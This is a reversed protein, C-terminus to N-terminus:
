VLTLGKTESCLFVETSADFEVLLGPLTDNRFFIGNRLFIIDSYAAAGAVMEIIKNTQIITLIDISDTVENLIKWLEDM